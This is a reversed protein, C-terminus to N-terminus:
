VPPRDISHVAMIEDRIQPSWPRQTEPEPVMPPLVEPGFRICPKQGM